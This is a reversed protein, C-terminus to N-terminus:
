KVVKTSVLSDLYQRKPPSSSWLENQVENRFYEKKYHFTLGNKAESRQERHGLNSRLDHYIDKVPVGIHLKATINAKVSQPIPQYKTKSGSRM